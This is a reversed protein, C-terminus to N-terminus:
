GEPVGRTISDVRRMRGDPALQGFMYVQTVLTKGKRMVAHMTYRAAARDAALLTEHVEVRCSVVNKRTPRVHDILRQRDLLIGDSYYEFDPVYYRDLVVGPDEDGFALEDPLSILFAMFKQEPDTSM